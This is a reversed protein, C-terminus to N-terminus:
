QINQTPPKRHLNETLQKPSKRFIAKQLKM